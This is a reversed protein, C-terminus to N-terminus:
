PKTFLDEFRHVEIVAAPPPPNPCPDHVVTRPGDANKPHVVRAQGKTIAEGCIDCLTM